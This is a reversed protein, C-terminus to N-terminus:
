TERARERRESVARRKNALVADAISAPIPKTKEILGLVPLVILLFGFYGVSLIRAVLTASDSVEQARLRSEDNDWEGAPIRPSKGSSSRGASVRWYPIEPHDERAAQVGGYSFMATATARSRGAPVQMSLGLAM